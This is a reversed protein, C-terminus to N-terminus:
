YTRARSLAQFVKLAVYFLAGLGALGKAVAAMDGALPMMDDYFRVCSKTFIIGNWRKGTNKTPLGMYNLYERPMM